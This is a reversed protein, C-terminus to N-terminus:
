INRLAATARRVNYINMRNTGYASCVVCVRLVSSLEQYFEDEIEKPKDAISKLEAVLKEDDKFMTLWSNYTQMVDM